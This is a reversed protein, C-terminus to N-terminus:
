RGVPMSKLIEIDVTVIGLVNRIHELWGTRPIMQVLDLFQM